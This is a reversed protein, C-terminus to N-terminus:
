FVDSDLFILAYDCGDSSTLKVCLSHWDWKQNYEMDKEIGKTHEDIGTIPHRQLMRQISPSKIAERISEPTAEIEIIDPVEEIRDWNGYRASCKELTVHYMKKM